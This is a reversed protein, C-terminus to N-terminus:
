ARHPTVERVWAGGLVREGDYCVLAQGPTIATVPHDFITELRDPAVLRVRGPLPSSNYRVKVTCPQWDRPPEDALWNVQDATAGNALLEDRSGVVLTNSAPDKDVVYLPTPHSLGLGRRQGLTFHQHGPHSGLRQGATDRIEGEHVQEPTRRRILGAYDQDPVFCIEQSDPKNFVPLEWREALERTRHKTMEGIPLLMRKLRERPTGFLVYSQDKTPDLGTLLRPPSRHPTETEGCPGRAVPWQGSRVIRAYHGTAVYQADISDAFDFLRGFKLWDNCRVCPNPTRGANYEAVFYDIIRGFDKEFNLVYFPIDLIAAVLRADDADNVSCCGQKHAKGRSAPNAQPLTFVAGSRGRSAQPDDGQAGDRSGNDCNSTRDDAAGGHRMFVGIVEHGQRKLLAAAVSSDVGGSMAVVIKSPHPIEPIEPEAM